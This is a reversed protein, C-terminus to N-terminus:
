MSEFYVYVIPDASRLVIKVTYLSCFVGASTVIGGSIV